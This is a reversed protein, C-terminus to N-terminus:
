HFSGAVARIRSRWRRRRARRLRPASGNAESLPAPLAVTAPLGDPAGGPLLARLDAVSPPEPSLAAQVFDALDGALVDDRAQGAEAPSMGAPEGRLVAVALAGAQGCDGAADLRQPPANGFAAIAPLAGALAVPAADEALAPLLALTALGHHDLRVQWPRVLGVVHGRAHLAQLGALVGDLLAVAEGVELPGHQLRDALTLSGLHATVVFVARGSRGVDLVPVVNPHAVSAAANARQLLRDDDPAEVLTVAVERSLRRDIASRVHTHAASGLPAGLAYRDALTTM